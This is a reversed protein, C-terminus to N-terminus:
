FDDPYYEITFKESECIKTEKSFPKQFPRDIYIGVKFGFGSTSDMEEIKIRMNAKLFEILEDKNM